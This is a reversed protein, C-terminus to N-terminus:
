LDCQLFDPIYQALNLSLILSYVLFAQNEKTKVVTQEMKLSEPHHTKYRDIAIFFGAYSTRHQLTKLNFHFLFTAVYM